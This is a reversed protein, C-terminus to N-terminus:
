HASDAEVSLGHERVWRQWVSTEALGKLTRYVPARYTPGLDQVRDLLAHALRARQDASAGARPMENVIMSGLWPAATPVVELILEVLRETHRESIGADVLSRVVTYVDGPGISPMRELVEDVARERQEASMGLRSFALELSSTSALHAWPLRDVAVDRLDGRSEVWGAIARVRERCGKTNPIIALLRHVARSRLGDSSNFLETLTEELQMTLNSEKFGVHGVLIDVVQDLQERSADLRFAAAALRIAGQTPSSPLLVMVRNLARRRMESSSEALQLLAGLHPSDGNSPDSALMSTMSEVTTESNLWALWDTIPLLTRANRILMDVDKGPEWEDGLRDLSLLGATLREERTPGLALFAEMLRPNDYSSTQPMHVALAAKVVSAEGRDPKLDLILDTLTVSYSSKAEQLIPLLRALVHARVTEVGCLTVLSNVMPTFPRDGSLFLETVLHDAVRLREGDAPEMQMFADMLHITIWTTPISQLLEARTEVREDSTLCLDVLLTALPEIRGTGSFNTRASKALERNLLTRLQRREGPTPDMEALAKGAPLVAEENRTATNLLARRAQLIEDTTPGFRTLAEALRPLSYNKGKTLAGLLAARVQHREADTPARTGLVHLLRDNHYDGSSLQALLAELAVRRAAGLETHSAELAILTQSVADITVSTAKPSWELLADRVQRIATGPSVAILSDLLVPLHQRREYSDLTADHTCIARPLRELLAIRIQEQREGDPNLWLLLKVLLGLSPANPVYALLWSHAQISDDLSPSLQILAIVLRIGTAFDSTALAALLAKRTRGEKGAFRSADVLADYIDSKGGLGAALRGLLVTWVQRIDNNPPDLRFVTRALRPLLDNDATGMKALLKTRASERMNGHTSMAKVLANLLTENDHDNGSWGEMLATGLRGVEELTPSLDLLLDTLFALKRGEASPLCSWIEARGMAQEEPTPSLDVIRPRLDSDPYPENLLKRLLIPRALSREEATPELRPLAGVLGGVAWRGGPGLRRLIENWAKKRESPAPHLSFFDEVLQTFVFRDCDVLEPLLKARVEPNSAAWLESSRVVLGTQRTAHIIRLQHIHSREPEDWDSPASEAAAALLHTDLAGCAIRQGEGKPRPPLSARLCRVVQARQPHAAIAGAVVASWEPDFWLHPRLVDAATAAPFTAIQEAVSHELLARHIFQREVRTHDYKSGTPYQQKPAVHDLARELAQPAKGTTIVNPWAGLGAPTVAEEIAAWAWGQLITRCLEPDPAPQDGSWRGTLLRDLIAQYLDRRKWPLDQGPLQETLMCYFTLLLPVTATARLERRRAIQTILREAITTEATFWERIYGHVDDPYHLEVLTGTRVGASTTLAPATTHWAEPRSTVVVRWGPPGPLSRLLIRAANEGVGSEDLSDAVALVRAGSRLVSLRIRAERVAPLAAAALGEIGGGPQSAWSAWTTLLPIEVSAPDVRPDELQGLATQAAERAYRQALWTKGSGPGGLVVLLGCGTLADAASMREQRSDDSTDLHLTRELLSPTKDLTWPSFDWEVIKARLHRILEDRDAVGVLEARLETISALIEHRSAQVAALVPGGELKLRGCLARYTAGIAREAVAYELDSGWYKDTRKAHDLVDTTAQVPDFDAQAIVEYRGGAAQVYEVAWALGRDVTDASVKESQAWAEISSQVVHRLQGEPSTRGWVSNCTKVLEKAVAVGVPGLPGSLASVAVTALSVVLESRRVVEVM